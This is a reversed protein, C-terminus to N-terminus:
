DGCVNGTGRYGVVNYTFYANLGMGPALGLPMNAGAGMIFCGILSAAATATVLDQKVVEQPLWACLAWSPQSRPCVSMRVYLHVSPRVSLHVSLCVSPRVSPCVSLCVSLSVATMALLM